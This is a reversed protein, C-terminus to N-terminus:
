NLYAIQLQAVTPFEEYYDGEPGLYGTGYRRLNVSVYGGRGDPINVCIMDQAAGNSVLTVTQPYQPLVVVAPRAPPPIVYRPRWAYHTVPWPNVVFSFGFRTHHSDRDRDVPRQETRSRDPSRHDGQDRDRGGAAYAQDPQLVFAAALVILSITMLNKM